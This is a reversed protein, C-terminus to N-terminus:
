PRGGRGGPQAEARMTTTVARGSRDTPTAALTVVTTISPLVYPATTSTTTTANPDFDPVDRGPRARTLGVLLLIVISLAV